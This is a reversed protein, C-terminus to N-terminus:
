RSNTESQVASNKTTESAGESSTGLTIRGDSEVHVRHGRYTFSVTGATRNGSGTPEFLADLATPDVADHLPPSLELPDVGDRAAVAEVVRISVPVAADDSSRKSSHSDM